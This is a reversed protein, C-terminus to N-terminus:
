PLRQRQRQQAREEAEKQRFWRERDRVRRQQEEYARQSARAVKNAADRCQRALDHARILMQALREDFEERYRGQWQEKAALAVRSREDATQDLLDAARQLASIAEDAAGFDWCVDQWNPEWDPM